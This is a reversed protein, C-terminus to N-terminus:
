LGFHGGLIEKFQSRFVALSYHDIVYQRAEENITMGKDLQTSIKEVADAPTDFRIVPRDDFIPHQGCFCWCGALMAEVMSYSFTDYATDSVFGWCRSVKKVVQLRTANPIHWDCSKALEKGLQLAVKNRIDLGWIDASGIFGKQLGLELPLSKYIEIISDINKEIAINSMGFLYPLKKDPEIFNIDIPDTLLVVNPMFSRLMQLMYPSNAAVVDTANFIRDRYQGDWRAFEVDSTWLIKYSTNAEYQKIRNDFDEFGGGSFWLSEVLSVMGAGYIESVVKISPIALKLNLLKICVGGGPNKDSPPLRENFNCHDSRFVATIDFM